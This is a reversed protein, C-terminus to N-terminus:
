KVLEYKMLVPAIEKVYYEKAKAKIIKLKSQLDGYNHCCNGKADHYTTDIEKEIQYIGYTFDPNYEEKGNAVERMLKEYLEFLENEEDTPEYGDEIYKDLYKRALTDGDLCIQNLYLRGDSGYQSVMHTYQTMCCWLLNKFLFDNLKGSKVDTWYHEADDGSAGYITNTWSKVNNTYQGASFSPLRTIFDDKRLYCGHEDYRTAILLNANLGPTDLTCGKTVMYAVINDNYIPKATIKIKKSLSKVDYGNPDTTIGGEIDEEFRRKDYFTDSHLTFMKQLYVEGDKKVEGGNNEDKISYIELELKNVNKVDVNIWEICSILGASAHFFQRNFGFGRAMKKNVLNHYKWYKPPAFVIYSDTPQRLYYKFASWIFVNCLENTVTGKVEKKMEQVVYSNKWECAEKGVKDKQNTVSSGQAYPPNEFLIVTCKENDLYQKIIPNNLFDNDLANSGILYGNESIEPTEGEKVEPLLHRVRGGLRERLVEWEKLEPSSIIVHSLIDDGCDESYDNLCWELNGTGACRDIIVYDNGKPVRDIAEKVLECSKRAYEMPTYFAGIKKQEMPDNLLDMIFRFDKEAGMWPNIYLKLVDSPKRLEEFFKIKKAKRASCHNYYYHSWGVVNQDCIEVKVFHNDNKKLFKHLETTDEFSYELKAVLSESIIDLFNPIGSSAIRQANHEIDNIYDTYYENDVFYCLEEDQSVLCTYKPVPVGDRNFRSLYILAQSFAKALGYSSINKKHEFLIGALYGDTNRGIHIKSKWNEGFVKEYFLEQYSREDLNFLEM